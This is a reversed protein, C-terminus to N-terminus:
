TVLTIKIHIQVCFIQPAKGPARYIFNVKRRKNKSTLLMNHIISDRQMLEEKLYQIQSSTSFKESTSCM